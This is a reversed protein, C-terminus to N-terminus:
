SAFVNITVGPESIRGAADTFPKLNEELRTRLTGVEDPPLQSVLVALAGAVETMFAWSEDFSDFNWTVPMEEIEVDGFGAATVLSRITHHDAMSFMGGPGFPDGAPTHGLEMMTLGTVTVWPNQEPGGWVSFALNRGDKLVRRCETLAAQPDLVLMFGWRCVIGDISSDELDMDMADLTRAEVNDLSLQAARRRAVDVMEPAFDTAIVTGSPGVLQAALFGVDGPGGAVDLITDGEQPDVRAVLREGVHHTTTWLYDRHKEWGPAMQDWVARSKEHADTTM